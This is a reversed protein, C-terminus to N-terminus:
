SLFHAMIEMVGKVNEMTLNGTVYLYSLILGVGLRLWDVKRVVSVAIDSATARPNSKIAARVINLVNPFPLIDVVGYLIQGAKNDGTLLNKLFKM